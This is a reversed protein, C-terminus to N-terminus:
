YYAQALLVFLKYNIYAETHKKTVTPGPPVSVEMNLLIKKTLQDKRPIFHRYKGRRSLKLKFGTKDPILAFTGAQKRSVDSKLVKTEQKLSSWKHSQKGM